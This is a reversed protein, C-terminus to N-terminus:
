RNDLPRLPIVVVGDRPRLETDPPVPQEPLTCAGLQADRGRWANRELWWDAVAASEVSYALSGERSTVAFDRFNADDV